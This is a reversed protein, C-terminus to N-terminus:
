GAFAAATVGSARTTWDSGSRVLLQGDEDVVVFTRVGNRASITVAGPASATVRTWGGVQVVVIAGSEPMFAAVSVNDVWTIASSPALATGVAVAAGLGLPVGTEDRAIPVIDLTPEGASSSLIALRTGDASVALDEVRAGALSDVHFELVEGLPGIALIQGDSEAPSTWLWGLRDFSLGATEVDTLRSVWADSPPAQQAQGAEPEATPQPEPNELTADALVESTWVGDGTAVAVTGGDFSLALDRAAATVSVDDAQAEGLEGVPSPVIGDDGRVVQVAQGDFLGIRGDAIVAATEPALPAPSLAVSGDGGLSVAGSILANVETVKPLQTLTASLQEGALARQSADGASGPSLAVTAVGDQVVVTDVALSSSAPFGTVVADALWPSPGDLLERAVATYIQENSPFWRLEPVLTTLDSTAFYLNLPRFFRDFDAASVLIGDPVSSIRFDGNDNVAVTFVLEERVDPGAQVMIGSSDVVAAVPVSYVFTGSADDFSPVIERSDFVTVHDLPDWSVSAADTLFLRATDYGTVAGGAAAALFGQVIARPSAGPEPGQVIPLVPDPEAVDSDGQNVPGSTPITACAVLALCACALATWASIPRHKM